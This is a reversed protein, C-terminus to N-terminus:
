AIPTKEPLYSRITVVAPGSGSEVYRMRLKEVTIYNEKISSTQLNADNRIVRYSSQAGNSKCLTSSLLLASLVLTVKCKM